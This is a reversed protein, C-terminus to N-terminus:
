ETEYPWDNIGGFEVIQSYGMQSLIKAANKSRNGSRCYVFILQDKDLLEAEARQKIENDPILVANPIHKEEYEAESRVDLIIYEENSSEMMEKAEEATVATYQEVAQYDGILWSGVALCIILLVLITLIKKM